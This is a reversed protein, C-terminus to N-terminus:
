FAMDLIKEDKTFFRLPHHFAHRFHFFPIKLVGTSAFNLILLESNYKESRMIFKSISQFFLQTSMCTLSIRNRASKCLQILMELEFRVM